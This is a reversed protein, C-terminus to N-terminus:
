IQRVESSRASGMAAGRLSFYHYFIYKWLDNDIFKLDKKICLALAHVRIMKSKLPQFGISVFSIYMSNLLIKIFNLSYTYLTLKRIKFIKKIKQRKIQINRIYFNVVAFLFSFTM